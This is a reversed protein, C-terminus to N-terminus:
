RGGDCEDTLSSAHFEPSDAIGGIDTGAPGGPYASAPLGDPVPVSPGILGSWRYAAAMNTGFARKAVADALVDLETRFPDGPADAMMPLCTDAGGHFRAWRWVFYARAGKSRDPRSSLLRGKSAGRTGVISALIARVDIPEFTGRGDCAYCAYERRPYVVGELSTFAESITLKSGNCRTCNRTQTM